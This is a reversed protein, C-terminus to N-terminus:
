ALDFRRNVKKSDDTVKKVGKRDRLGPGGFDTRRWISDKLNKEMINM